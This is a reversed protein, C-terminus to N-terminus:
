KETQFVSNGHVNKYVEEEKNRKMYVMRPVTENHIIFTLTFTFTFNDRHCWEMFAYQPLSLIAGRMRSRPVLHYHTILKMGRVSLGALFSGKTGM